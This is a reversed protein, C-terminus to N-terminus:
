HYHMEKGCNPCECGIKMFSVFEDQKLVMPTGCNKCTIMRHMEQNCNSCKYRKNIDVSSIALKQNCELCIFQTTPAPSIIPKNLTGPVQQREENMAM